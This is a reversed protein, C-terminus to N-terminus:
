YKIFRRKTTKTVEQQYQTIREIMTPAEVIEVTKFKVKMLKMFNDLEMWERNFKVMEVTKDLGYIHIGQFSLEAEMEKARINDEIYLIQIPTGYRRDKILCKFNMIALIAEKPLDTRFMYRKIGVPTLKYTDTYIAQVYLPEQM